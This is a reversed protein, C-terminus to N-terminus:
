ISSGNIQDIVNLFTENDPIDSMSSGYHASRIRGEIDVICNLPMRGLKFLNVEQRYERAVTHDLDPLGIFPINEKEWYQGTPSNPNVLVVMVPKFKSIDITLADYNIKFDREKDLAHRFLEVDVVNEFIHTYEGYMPDLILV